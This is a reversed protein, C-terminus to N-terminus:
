CKQVEPEGMRGRESMQKESELWVSEGHGDKCAGMEGM